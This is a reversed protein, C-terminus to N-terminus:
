CLSSIPISLATVPIVGPGIMGFFDSLLHPFCVVSTFRRSPLAVAPYFLPDLVVWFLDIMLRDAIGAGRAFDGVVLCM